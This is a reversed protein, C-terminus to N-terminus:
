VTFQIQPRRFFKIYFVMQIDYFMTLNTGSGPQSADHDMSQVFIQWYKKTNPSNSVNAEFNASTVARAELKKVSCYHKIRMFANGDSGSSYRYRAYPQTLAENFDIGASDSNSPYVAMGVLNGTAHNGATVKISSGYCQYNSYFNAWQNFGLPKDGGTIPLNPDNLRLTIDNTKETHNGTM